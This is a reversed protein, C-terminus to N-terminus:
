FDHQFITKDDHEFGEAHESTICGSTDSYHLRFPYQLVTMFDVSRSHTDQQQVAQNDQLV